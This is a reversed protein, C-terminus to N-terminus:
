VDAPVAEEGRYALLAELTEACAEPHGTMLANFSTHGTAVAITPLGNARAAAIDYLTDGVVCISAASGAAARALAAANAIMESRVEYRDSFGGFTFWSRLGAVAVKTWGISAINGTAVGLAAGKHKLHALAAEVGPMVSAKMQTQRLRVQESMCTLIAAANPRWIAEEIAAHRFADRLIGPDTNGHLTVGDLSLESGLVQRVASSFSEYHVSDLCHLLTGDIDFLYADHADWAFGPEVYVQAAATSSRTM